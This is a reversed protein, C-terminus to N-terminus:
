SSESVDQVPSGHVQTAKSARVPLPGATVTVYAANRLGCKVGTCLTVYRMAVFCM